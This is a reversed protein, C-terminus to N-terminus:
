ASSIAANAGLGLKRCLRALERQEDATLVNIERTVIEVHGPFIDAILQRGTATLHVLICRRDDEQRQRRVLGRKELNTLVLTLNGSSKLIKQALQSPQLPGLHYLAELVGFQSTSLNKM